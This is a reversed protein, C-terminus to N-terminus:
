RREKFLQNTIEEKSSFFCFRLYCKEKLSLFYKAVKINNIKPNIKSKIHDCVYFKCASCKIICGNKGLYNCAVNKKNKCCGCDKGSYERDKICKGDKFDCYKLIDLSDLYDCTIDYILEFREKRDKINLVKEIELLEKNKTRRNNEYITFNNKSYRYFYLKYLNHNNINIIKNM